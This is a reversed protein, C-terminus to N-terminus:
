RQLTRELLRQSALDITTHLEARSGPPSAALLRRGGTTMGAVLGM